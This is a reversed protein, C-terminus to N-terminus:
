EALTANSTPEATTTSNTTTEPATTPAEAPTPNLNMREDIARKLADSMSIERHDTQWDYHWGPFTDPHKTEMSAYSVGLRYALNEFCPYFRMGLEIVHSQGPRMFVINSLGAGHIGVLLKASSFLRVQEWLSLKETIVV